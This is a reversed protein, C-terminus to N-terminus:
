AAGFPLYAKARPPQGITYVVKVLLERLVPTHRSEEETMCWVTVQDRKAPTCIGEGLLLDFLSHWRPDTAPSSPYYFEIGVQPGLTSSVDLQVSHMLTHRCFRTLFAALGAVEHKTWGLRELYTPLVAWPLKIILRVVDGTERPRVAVHLLAASPPMERLCHRVMTATGRDLAGGTLVGLGTEVVRQTLERGAQGDREWPPSLTFFAFPFPAGTGDQDLDFEVWAVPVNAHLFSTPDVWQRMFAIASGWECPMTRDDPSIQSLWAAVLDRGGRSSTICAQLDVREDEDLRCEFTGIRIARPLIEPISAMRKWAPDAILGAPVYGGVVKLLEHVNFLM